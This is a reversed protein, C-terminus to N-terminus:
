NENNSDKFSGKDTDAYSINIMNIIIYYGLYLFAWWLNVLEFLLYLSQQLAADPGLISSEYM